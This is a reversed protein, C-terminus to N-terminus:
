FMKPEKPPNPKLDPFKEKEAKERQKKLDEEYADKSEEYDYRPQADHDPGHFSHRETM